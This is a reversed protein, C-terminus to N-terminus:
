RVPSAVWPMSEEFLSVIVLIIQTIQVIFGWMVVDSCSIKSESTRAHVQADVIRVM